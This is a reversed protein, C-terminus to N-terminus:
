PNCTLTTVSQPPLIIGDLSKLAGEHHCKLEVTTTFRQWTGTESLSVTREVNAANVLVVVHHGKTQPDDYASVLVDKANTAASSRVMGPRVFKFFNMSTYFKPTIEYNKDESKACYILAEGKKDFFLQWYCVMQCDGETLAWHMKQAWIMAEDYSGPEAGSLYNATEVLWLPRKYKEALTRASRWRAPDKDV